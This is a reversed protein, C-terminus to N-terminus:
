QPTELLLSRLGDHRRSRQAREQASMWLAERSPDGLTLFRGMGHSRFTGLLTCIRPLTLINLRTEARHAFTCIVQLDFEINHGVVCSPKHREITAFLDILAQESLIQDKATATGSERSAFSHTINPMVASIPKLLALSHPESLVGDPTSITAIYTELVMQKGDFVCWAIERLKTRDLDCETDLVLVNADRDAASANRVCEAGSNTTPKM